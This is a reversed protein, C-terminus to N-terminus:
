CDPKIIKIKKAIKIMPPNVFLRILFYPVPLGSLEVLELKSGDPDKIYAFTASTNMGMDQKFPPVILEAGKKIMSELTSQVDTVDFSIEMFGIDGWKRGDYNHKGKNDETEILEIMGGKLFHRFKGQPKKGRKLLARKIKKGKGFLDDWEPCSGEYTYVVEDYGLIGKYFDISKKLNSVGVAIYEIGGIKPRGNGYGMNNGPYELLVGYIGDPDQFVATKWLQEAKPTFLNSHSIITGGFKKIVDLCREISKVKLGYFLFGNFSFDVEQPISVPTKSTYQFIEIAAGGYPNLPIIVDRLEDKGIIPVVGSCTGSHKSLPASFGLANNYFGYSKKRNKVGIGIHQIGNIM